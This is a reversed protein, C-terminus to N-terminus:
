AENTKGFIILVIKTPDILKNELDNDITQPTMFFLRKERYYEERKKPRVSGTLELIDEPNIGKLCEVAAKQQNVLPRTPALFFIKGDPFWNYYNLIVNAAVFTKGLGTPLCVLTNHFLCTEVMNFQYERFSKSMLYVWSKIHDPDIKAAPEFGSNKGIRAEKGEFHKTVEQISLKSFDIKEEEKDKQMYEEIRSAGSTPTGKATSGEKKTWTVTKKSQATAKEAPKKM